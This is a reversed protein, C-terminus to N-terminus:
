QRNPSVQSQRVLQAFEHLTKTYRDGGLSILDENHDAGEIWLFRKPQNATAFLQEGHSFPIVSDSTGHIILVPCRVMKIKDINAFKDFPVIPIRTVVLFAKTFASELILGGVSKRSALDVSPGGGVSRGYVIINQTPINLKRTLYDYATDVDKYANSESPTGQSTGYGRYDYAFVSFGLERLERLIPLMDGLDEANGHSYLITYTAKSNPLYIASIQVGDAAILKLIDKTDQYTSPPPKFIMWDTFFYGYICLSVYVFIISRILRKLSFDGILLHKLKQKDM